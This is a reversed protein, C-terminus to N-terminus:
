TASEASEPIISGGRRIRQVVFFGAALLLIATCLLIFGGVGFGDQRAM